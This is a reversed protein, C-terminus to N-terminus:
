IKEATRMKASRARPNDRTEEPSPRMPKKTIVAVEGSKKRDRFINKVIRDELSHFSIVCIRGGSRLRDIAQPVGKEVAGLEDNVYIRLAQFTRAAPHIKQRHYKAGLAGAVIRALDGTRLIPSEKRASCIRKAVLKAHREEGLDRILDALEDASFSNVVDRATKGQSRDFRMDLPGDNMFSFGREGEDIQYSSMGLDFVAGDILDIGKENLITSIDRYDGNVSIVSGRFEKFRERIRKSADPDRDVAVLKGGPLIMKLIEGSHGGGGATADFIIDGPKPRLHQIVENFLVPLHGM